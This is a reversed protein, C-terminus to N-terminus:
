YALNVNMENEYMSSDDYLLHFQIWNNIYKYVEKIDLKKGMSLEIKYKSINFIFAKYIPTITKKRSNFSAKVYNETNVFYLISFDTLRSLIRVYDFNSKNNQVAKGFENIIEIFEQREDGIGQWEVNKIKDM